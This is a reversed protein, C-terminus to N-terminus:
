NKDRGCRWVHIEGFFVGGEEWGLVEDGIFEWVGGVGHGEGGGGGVAAAGDGNAAEDFVQVVADADEREILIGEGEAGGWIEGEVVGVRGGLEHEM